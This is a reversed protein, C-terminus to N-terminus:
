FGLPPRVGKNWSLSILNITKLRENNYNKWTKYVYVHSIDLYISFTHTHKNTEGSINTREQRVCMHQLAAVCM